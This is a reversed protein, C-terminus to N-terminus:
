DYTYTHLVPTGYDIQVQSINVLISFIRYCLYIFVLDRSFMYGGEVKIHKKCKDIWKAFRSDNPALTAGLELAVKATKYDEIEFSAFSSIISIEYM